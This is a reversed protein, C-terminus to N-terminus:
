TPSLMGYTSKGTDLLSTVARINGQQRSNSAQSRRLRAQASANADGVLLDNQNDRIDRKMITGISGDTTVGAAGAAANQSSLARILDRRREIENQKAALGEVRSQAKLENSQAIGANRAQVASYAGAAVTTGVAVATGVSMGGLIAPTAALFAM